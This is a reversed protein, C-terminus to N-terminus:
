CLLGNSPRLFLATAMKLGVGASPDGGIQVATRHAPSEAHKKFRDMTLNNDRVEYKAFHHRQHSFRKMLNFRTETTAAPQMTQVGRGVAQEPYRTQLGVLPM